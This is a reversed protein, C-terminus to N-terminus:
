LRVEKRSFFDLLMDDFQQIEEHGRGPFVYRKRPCRLANYVACQAKPPCVTDALGTGYLVPCCVMSAFNKSDIYGLQRFWRERRRGDPDFWRDYYRLGEYAITDAGLEWVLRMDGLFPYLIAARNILEPNLAACALGIAGGQSGGNVAVRSQDIGPLERVIRCLLRVNQHLRVYYMKEPPGDLGAVVHGAATPGRFGGADYGHGGQGPCDMALIAMGMGVFSAQEAWSRSSGPYGHFQLVLPVPRATRPRLYKAYLRSGDVGSFWLDWTECTDFDPVERAPTLRWRLPFADAERIREQWFSEFDKPKPTLGPYTNLNKVPRTVSRNGM